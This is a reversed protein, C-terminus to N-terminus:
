DTGTEEEVETSFETRKASVSKEDLPLLNTFPDGTRQSAVWM